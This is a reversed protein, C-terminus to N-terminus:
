ASETDDFFDVLLRGLEEPQDIMPWHGAGEMREYRWGNPAFPESGTMQGESLAFDKVGWLGMVPCQLSPFGSMCDIAGWHTVNARYNNLAHTLAEPAALWATLEPADGQGDSMEGMLRWHDAMLATEAVGVKAFFDFYWSKRRQEVTLWGPNPAGVSVAAFRQVRDPLAAAMAWAVSCGFDHGALRFRNVGLQDLIAGLTQVHVPIAYDAVAQGRPADGFGLLNPAIVRHGATILSEIQHRWILRTDPFGHVLLLPEGAGSDYVPFERGNGRVWKTAAIMDQTDM